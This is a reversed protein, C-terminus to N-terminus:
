LVESRRVLSFQSRNEPAKIDDLEIRIVGVNTKVEVQQGAFAAVVFLQFFLAFLVSIRM